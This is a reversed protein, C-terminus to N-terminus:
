DAEPTVSIGGALEAPKKGSRIGLRLPNGGFGQASDYTESLQMRPESKDTKAIVLILHGNLPKTAPLTLEIRQADCLSVACFLVAAGALTKKM